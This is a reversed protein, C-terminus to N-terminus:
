KLKKTMAEICKKKQELNPHVYLNLTTNISSHGLLVSVTKYDCNSEICRTAFSHRLTHFKMRPIGLSDTIKQLHIRYLRPEIPKSSNSIVYNNEPVVKKLPKVIAMLDKTLPIERKSNSTKPPGIIIETHSQGADKVYIRQITKNIRIVGSSTDIDKWKLACIEGIRLGTSLCISLGLNLFSFNGKLYNMLKKQDSINMVEIEKMATNAPFIIDLPAYTCMGYKYGFKLIMKLVVLISKVTKQSLGEKLKRNVMEQIMTESIETKESLVPLLHNDLILSYAAFSSQKIYNRKEDKWLSAITGFTVGEPM